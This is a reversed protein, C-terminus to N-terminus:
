ASAGRVRRGSWCAPCHPGTAGDVPRQRFRDFPAVLRDGIVATYADWDVPEDFWMVSNIIM